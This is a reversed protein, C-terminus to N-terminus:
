NDPAKLMPFSVDSSPYFIISFSIFFTTAEQLICLLTAPLFIEPSSNKDTTELMTKGFNSLLTASTISGRFFLKNNM